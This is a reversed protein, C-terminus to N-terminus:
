LQKILALTETESPLTKFSSSAARIDYLGYGMAISKKLRLQVHARKEVDSLSFSSGKVSLSTRTPGSALAIQTASADHFKVLVEGPVRHQIPTANGNQSFPLASALLGIAAWRRPICTLAPVRLWRNTRFSETLYTPM